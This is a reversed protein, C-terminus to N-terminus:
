VATALPSTVPALERNFEQMLARVATNEVAATRAQAACLASRFGLYDAGLARLPMVDALALKGALGCLLGHAKVSAVFGALAVVSMLGCLGPGSKDATDLMLGALGLGALRAIDHADPPAEAFCVAIVRAAGACADRLAEIMLPSMANAYLGVKAYHAGADTVARVRAPIVAPRLWHNGITASVTHSSGFTAAVETITPLAVAGLAGAEPEKLDIWPVGCGAVIRAEGLNRVSALVATM